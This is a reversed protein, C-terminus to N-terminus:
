QATKCTRFGKNLRKGRRWYLMCGSEHAAPTSGASGTKNCLSRRTTQARLSGENYVLISCSFHWLKRLFPPPRYLNLHNSVGLKLM